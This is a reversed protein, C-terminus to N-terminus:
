LDVAGDLMAICLSPDGVTAQWLDRLGPLQENRLATSPLGTRMSLWQTLINLVDTRTRFFEAAPLNKVHRM